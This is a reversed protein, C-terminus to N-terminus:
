ARYESTKDFCMLLLQLSFKRSVDGRAREGGVSERESRDMERRYREGVRQGRVRNTEPEHLRRSMWNRAHVPEEYVRRSTRRRRRRTAALVLGKTEARTVRVDNARFPDFVLAHLIIRRRIRHLHLVLADRLLEM